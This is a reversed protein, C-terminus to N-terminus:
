VGHRLLDEVKEKTTILEFTVWRAGCTCWRWRKKVTREIVREVRIVGGVGNRGNIKGCEPCRM